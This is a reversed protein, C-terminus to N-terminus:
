PPCSIDANLTYGTKVPGMRTVVTAGGPMQISLIQQGSADLAFLTPLDNCMVIRSQVEEQGIAHNTVDPVAAIQRLKDGERRVIRLTKNLHPRDVYAIEVAGDGDFDAAGIPALWRFRRGIFKTTAVRALSPKGANLVVEWLALRAGETQHSEVVLIERRGDGNLDLLRPAFDEFVLNDPLRIALTGPDETCDLCPELDVILDTHARLRGMINHPYRDTPNAYAAQLPRPVSADQSLAASSSLASALIALGVARLRAGATNVAARGPPCRWNRPSQGQRNGKTPIVLTATRDQHM